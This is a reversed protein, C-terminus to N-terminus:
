RGGYMIVNKGSHFFDLNILSELSIGEPFDIEDTRFQEKTYLKPFGSTNLLKMIRREQRYRVENSLLNILYEQHTGGEQTLAREALNSSLRLQKCCLAISEQIDAM